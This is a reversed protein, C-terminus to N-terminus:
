VTQAVLHVRKPRSGPELLASLRDLTTTRGELKDVVMASLAIWATRDVAREGNEWQSLTEQAVDLLEALYDTRMGITKRMFRFTEGNSPGERALVSAAEMEVAKLDLGEFYDAGCQECRQTPVMRVFTRGAVTVSDEAESALFARHGCEVCRKM